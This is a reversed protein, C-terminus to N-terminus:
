CESHRKKHTKHTRLTRHAPHPPPTGGTWRLCTWRCSLHLLEFVPLSAMVGPIPNWSGACPSGSQHERGKSRTVDAMPLSAVVVMDQENEISVSKISIFKMQFLLNWKFREYWTVGFSSIHKQQHLNESLSNMIKRPKNTVWFPLCNEM